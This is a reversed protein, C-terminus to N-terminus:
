LYHGLTVNTVEVFYFRVCFKLWADTIPEGEECFM